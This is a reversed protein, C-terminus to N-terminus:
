LHEDPLWNVSLIVETLGTVGSIQAVPPRWPVGTLHRRTCWDRACDKLPGDAGPFTHGATYGPATADWARVETLAATFEQHGLRSTYDLRAFRGTAHFTIAPEHDDTTHGDPHELFIEWAGDPQTRLDARELTAIVRRPAAAIISISAAGARGTCTLPLKKFAATAEHFRTYLPM